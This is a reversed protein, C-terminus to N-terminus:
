RVYAPLPHQAKGHVQVGTSEGKGHIDCRLDFRSYHFFCLSRCQISIEKGHLLRSISLFAGCPLHERTDFARNSTQSVQLEQVKEIVKCLLKLFSALLLHWGQLLFLCSCLALHLTLENLQHKNSLAKTQM